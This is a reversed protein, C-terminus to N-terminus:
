FMLLKYINKLNELYLYNVSGIYLLKKPNKSTQFNDKNEKTSSGSYGVVNSISRNSLSLSGHSLNFLASGAPNVSVASMDGGLAGFAGSMAKFRATGQTNETSYRLADSINQGYSATLSIIGLLALIIKKM